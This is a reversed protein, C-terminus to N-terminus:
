SRDLNTPASGMGDDDAMYTLHKMAPPRGEGGQVGRLAVSMM